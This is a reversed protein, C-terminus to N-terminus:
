EGLESYYNLKDPVGAMDNVRSNGHGKQMPRNRPVPEQTTYPTLVYGNRNVYLYYM